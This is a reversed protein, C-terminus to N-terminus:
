SYIMFSILNYSDHVCKFLLHKNGAEGKGIDRDTTDIYPRACLLLPSGSELIISGHIMAIGYLGM